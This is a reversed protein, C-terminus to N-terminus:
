LKLLNIKKSDTIVENIIKERTSNIYNSLKKDFLSQRFVGDIESDKVIEKIKKRSLNNYKKHNSHGGLESFGADLKHVPIGNDLGNFDFNEKNRSVFNRLEVMDDDLLLDKPIIHHAEFKLPLLKGNHKMFYKNKFLDEIHEDSLNAVDIKIGKADRLDIKLFREKYTQIVKKNLAKQLVGKNKIVRNSININALYEQVANQSVEDGKNLLKTLKDRPGKEKVKAIGEELKKVTKSKFKRKVLDTKGASSFNSDVTKTPSATLTIAYINGGKHTSDWKPKLKPYLKGSLKLAHMLETISNGKADMFEATARAQMLLASRMWNKSDDLDHIYDGKEFLKKPLKALLKEKIEHTFKEIKMLIKGLKGLKSALKAFAAGGGTFIGIIVELLITGLLLGIVRGKEYSSSSFWNEIVKKVSDGISGLFSYLINKLESWSSNALKIIAQYMEKLKDLFKGSLLDRITDIISEIYEIIGVLTDYIGRLIGEIVGVILGAVGALIEAIIDGTKIATNMFESRSSLNGIQRQLQIYQENPIRVIHNASLQLQSYTLRAKHFDPDHAAKIALEFSKGTKLTEEKLVIGHNHNSKTNLLYFAEALTRRDNGTEIKYNKYFVNAINTEFNYNPKVYLFTRTYKDLYNDHPILIINHIEIYGYKHDATKIKYWGKNTLDEHMVVVESVVKYVKESIGKKSLYSADYPSPTAHLRIGNEAIVFGRKNIQKVVAKHGTIKKFSTKQEKTSGYKLAISEEMEGANKDNEIQQRWIALMFQRFRGMESASTDKLELTHNKIIM